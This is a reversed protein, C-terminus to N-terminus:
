AAGADRNPDSIEIGRRAVPVGLGIIVLCEAAPDFGVDERRFSAIGSEQCTLFHKSIRPCVLPQGADTDDFPFRAIANVGNEVEIIRSELLAFRHAARLPEGVDPGIGLGEGVLKRLQEIDAGKKGIVVGPRATHITVRARKAPREIIIRSVGAQALKGFLHKRIRIDEHLLDAYDRDAFWRSDWTRNVGLRLGIPNVKQGM